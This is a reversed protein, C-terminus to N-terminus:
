DADDYAIAVIELEEASQGRATRVSVADGVRRGLLGRAVPALFAVRGSTADAEDVGVVTLRREGGDPGRLTVTAGFRVEDRPQRRGDIVVASGIRAALATIREAVVALRRVRERDDGTASEVRTREQELAAMESRLLEMGRPTVYNTAGAPLPARAPVVTAGTEDDDKTFAKSV